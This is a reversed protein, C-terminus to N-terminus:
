GLDGSVLVETTTLWLLSISSYQLRPAATSGSPFRLTTGSASLSVAGVGMRVLEVSTGVELTPVTVTITSASNARIVEGSQSQAITFNGTQASPVSAKYIGNVVGHVTDSHAKHGSTTGGAVINTPQTPAAPV